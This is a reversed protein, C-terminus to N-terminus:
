LFLGLGAVGVLLFFLREGGLRSRVVLFLLGSGNCDRRTYGDPSVSESKVGLEM